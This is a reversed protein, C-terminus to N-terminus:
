NGIPKSKDSTPSQDNGAGVFGNKATGFLDFLNSLKSTITFYFGRRPGIVTSGAPETAMAFNYGVGLRLDPLAWWGLETGYSSRQTSSSPQIMLRMEGAWDFQRTLRYQARAQTLYTLTSVFPLDAQGNASFRLAVRGYLELRKTAQFYGDSSL